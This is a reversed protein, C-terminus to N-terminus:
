DDAREYNVDSVDPQPEEAIMARPPPGEPVIPSAVARGGDLSPPPPAIAAEPLAKPATM